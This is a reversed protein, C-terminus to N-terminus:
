ENLSKWMKVDNLANKTTCDWFYSGGRKDIHFYAFLERLDELQVLVKSTTDPRKEAFINWQGIPETQDSFFLDMVKHRRM